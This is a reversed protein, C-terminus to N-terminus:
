YNDEGAYKYGYHSSLPRNNGDGDMGPVKDNIIKYSIYLATVLVTTNFIEKKM